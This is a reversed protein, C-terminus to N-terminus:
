IWKWGFRRYFKFASQAFMGIHKAGKRSAGGGHHVIRVSPVYAIRAVAHTRLSLDYDEFYLFYRRDFGGLKKLIDTRFLMFCGSVIPPDWVVDRSNLIERLEYNALRYDFWRKLAPPAFGRLLLDTVTPYRRCLYQQAGDGGVILPTILGVDAHKDLFNIANWFADEDIEVDPNLILHFRSKAGNIALNHGQGYGINGHGSLVSVKINFDALASKYDLNHLDTGNDVLTLMAYPQTALGKLGELRRLAAGLSTLTNRLVELPQRYTVISVSILM